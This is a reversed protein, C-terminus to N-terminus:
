PEHHRVYVMLEDRAVERARDGEAFATSYRYRNTISDYLASLAENGTINKLNIVREQPEALTHPRFARARTLWYDFDPLAEKLPGAEEDPLEKWWIEFFLLANGLDAMKEDMGAMFSLARQDGTDQAFNLGAFGSLRHALATLEELEAVLAQFERPSPRGAELKEQWRAFRATKEDLAAMDAALAPGDLVYLQDLNWHPILDSM